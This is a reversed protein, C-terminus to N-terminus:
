QIEEPQAAVAAPLEVRLTGREEGEVWSGSFARPDERRLTCRRPRSRAVLEFCGPESEPGILVVVGREDWYSLLLEGDGLHLDADDDEFAPRGDCFGVTVRCGSFSAM